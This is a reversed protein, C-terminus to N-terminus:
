SRCTSARVCAATLYRARVAPRRLEAPPENVFPTRDSPCRVTPMPRLSGRHLPRSRTVVPAALDRDSIDRNRFGNRVFSDNATNELLRRVLYAMGPVLEGVPRYVRVRLGSERVAEHLPEAMGHLVQVEWRTRRCGADGPRAHDRVAISRVNHSAIAPRVAGAAAM